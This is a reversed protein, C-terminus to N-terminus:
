PTEGWSQRVGLGRLKDPNVVIYIAVIREDAVELAGAAVAEGAVEVMIGPQGNIWRLRFVSGPPTKAQIGLLFTEQVIDEADMVSGTMRYAISFLLPRYSAVMAGKSTDEVVRDSRGDLM